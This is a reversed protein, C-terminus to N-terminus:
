RHRAQRGRHDARHLNEDEHRHDHDSRGRRDGGDKALKEVAKPIGTEIIDMPLRVGIRGTSCVYVTKEDAGIPEATLAAMREADIMGQPGNCANANGSNIIVARGTRGALRKQCLKVTSAKVQNTTFTGAMTAPADSVLLAM